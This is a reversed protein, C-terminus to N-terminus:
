APSVPALRALEQRLIQIETRLTNNEDTLIQVRQTTAQLQALAAALQEHLSAALPADHAITLLRSEELDQQAYWQALQEQEAPSLEIHRTARDHLRRGLEDPIM